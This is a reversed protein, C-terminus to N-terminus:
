QVNRPTITSELHMPNGDVTANLSFSIKWIDSPSGVPSGLSGGSANQYSFQFSSLGVVMPNANRYLTNGSFNYIIQESDIDYFNIQSSSASVIDNASKISRLDKVLIEMSIRSSQLMDKRASVFNFIDVGWLFMKSMVGAVIGILVIVTIMELLSYGAQNTKIRNPKENNM